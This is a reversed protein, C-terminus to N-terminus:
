TQQGNAEDLHDRKPLKNALLPHNTAKGKQGAKVGQFPQLCFDQWECKV